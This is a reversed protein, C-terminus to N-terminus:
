RIDSQSQSIEECEDLFRVLGRYDNIADMADDYDRIDHLQGNRFILIRYKGYGVIHIGDVEIKDM